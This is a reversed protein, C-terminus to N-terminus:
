FIEKECAFTNWATFVQKSQMRLFSAIVEVAELDCRLSEMKIRNNTKGANSSDRPIQFKQQSQLREM